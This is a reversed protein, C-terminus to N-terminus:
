IHDARLCHRAAAAVFSFTSSENIVKREKVTTTQILSIVGARASHAIESSSTIVTASLRSAM